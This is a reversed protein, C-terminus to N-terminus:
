DRALAEARSVLEEFRPDNRLGDYIPNLKLGGPGLDAPRSLLRDIVELAPENEGALVLTWLRILEVNYGDVDDRHMGYIGVSEDVVRIGEERDGPGARLILGLGLISRAIAAAAFRDGGAPVRRSEVESRAEVVVSDAWASAEPSNGAMHAVLARLLSPPGSLDFDGAAPFGTWEGPELGQVAAQAAEYDREFTAVWFAAAAGADAPSQELLGEAIRRGSAIDGAAALESQFFQLMLGINDPSLENAAQHYQRADAYQRQRRYNIALNWLGDSNLPDLEVGHRQAETSEDWRGVRRLVWGEAQWGEGDGPRQSRYAQFHPLAGEFDAHGYYRYYGNALRTEPAEPALELLRDLSRRAPMTDTEFGRRIKWVQSRVLMAWAAIFEPDLDVARQFEAQMRVEASSDGQMNLLRRGRHYAAWAETSTTPLEALAAAEQPSLEAELAETVARAIEGQMAFVNEATLERDYTEAWLHEDTAADILQINVRVRGGSSRVGGEVLSGVRLERAIDRAPKDSNEYTMVSTRSTVRLDDIRTLQTLLDDHIGLAFERSEEDETLSQFPLVAVATRAPATGSVARGSGEGSEAEVTVADSPAKDSRGSRSSLALWGGVVLAVVGVLALLGSPWRSAAPQAIIAEIEGTKAVDTRQIGAPTSEFAWALVVAIPFGLMSLLAVGTTFSEPLHLAPVLIDAVQLVVFAVAGYVAAVRFVKRRKLEAFFRQYGSTVM